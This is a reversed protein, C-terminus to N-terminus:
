ANDSISDCGQLMTQLAIYWNDRTYDIKNKRVKLWM